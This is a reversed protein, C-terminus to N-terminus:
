QNHRKNRQQKKIKKDPYKIAQQAM